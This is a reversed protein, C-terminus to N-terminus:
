RLGNGRLALCTRQVAIFEALENEVAVNSQELFGQLLLGCGNEGPVCIEAPGSKLTEQFLNRGIPKLEAVHAFQYLLVQQISRGSAGDCTIEGTPSIIVSTTGAMIPQWGSVPLGETTQIQGTAACKLAGARTFGRTGDPLQVELFGEGQIAVDLREGTQIMEGATLERARFAAEPFERLREEKSLDLASIGVGPSSNSDVTRRFPSVCRKFGPTHLNALNFLTSQLNVLYARTFSDPANEQRLRDSFRMAEAAFNVLESDRKNTSSLAGITQDDKQFSSIQQGEGVSGAPTCQSPASPRFGILANQCGTLFSPTLLAFTM